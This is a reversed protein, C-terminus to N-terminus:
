NLVIKPLPPRRLTCEVSFNSEEVQKPTGVVFREYSNHRIFSVEDGIIWLTTDTASYHRVFRNGDYFTFMPENPFLLPCRQAVRDMLMSAKARAQELAEDRQAVAEIPCAVILMPRQSVRMPGGAVSPPLGVTTSAGDVWIDQCPDSTSRMGIGSVIADIERRDPRRHRPDGPSSRTVVTLMYTPRGHAQDIREAVRSWDPMDTSLMRLGGAGIFSSGPHLSPFVLSGSEVDMAFYVAPKGVLEPPVLIEYWSGSESWPKLDYRLQSGAMVFYLQIPLLLALAYFRFRPRPIMRWVLAVLVPGVLLFWPLLYRGNGSTHLWAPWAIALGLVLAALRPHALLLEKVRQVGHSKVATLGMILAIGLLLALVFFRADPAPFDIYVTTEPSMMWVPRLAADMLDVPMYRSHSSLAGIGTPSQLLGTLQPEFPFPIGFESRIRWWWYGGIAFFCVTATLGLTIVARLRALRGPTLCVFLVVVGLASVVNSLKLAAAAGLLVGAVAARGLARRPALGPLEMALAAALLVPIATPLDNFSNGLQSLFTPSVAALATSLWAGLLNFERALVEGVLRGGVYWVAWLAPAHLLALLVVVVRDPLGSSALLYFPIYSYPIEYSQGSVPYFDLAFRDHLANFGAFYHFHRQDWSIDKGLAYGVCACAIAILAFSALVM